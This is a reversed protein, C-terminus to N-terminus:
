QTRERFMGIGDKGMLRVNVLDRVKKEPCLIRGTAGRSGEGLPVKAKQEARM